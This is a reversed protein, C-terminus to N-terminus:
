PMGARSAGGKIESIGLMEAAAHRDAVVDALIVGLM